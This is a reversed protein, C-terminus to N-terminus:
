ALADLLRRARALLAPYEDARARRVNALRASLAKTQLRHCPLCLTRLNGLENTGGEALALTHDADWWTKRRRRSPVNWAEAFAARKSRPLAAYTRRLARCDTGCLACIGRDRKAVHARLGRWTAADWYADACRDACWVRRRPGIEAECGLCLKRGNPGTRGAVRAELDEKARGIPAGRHRRPVAKAISM